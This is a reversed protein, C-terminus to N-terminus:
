NNKALLARATQSLGKGKLGAVLEAVNASMVCTQLKSFLVTIENTAQALKTQLVQQEIILDSLEKEMQRIEKQSNTKSM